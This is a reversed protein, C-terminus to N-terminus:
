CGAGAGSGALRDAVTGFIGPLPAGGRARTSRQLGDLEGETAAAWGATSAAGVAAGGGATAAGVSSPAAGGAVWVWPGDAPDWVSGATRSREIPYTVAGSFRVAVSVISPAGTVSRCPSDALPISTCSM